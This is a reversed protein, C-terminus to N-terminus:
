SFLAFSNRRKQSPVIFSCGRILRRTTEVRQHIQVPICNQVLRPLITAAGCSKLEIDVRCRNNKTRPTTKITPSTNHEGNYRGITQDRARAYGLAESFFRARFNRKHLLSVLMKRRPPTYIDRFRLRFLACPVARSFLHSASSFLPGLVVVKTRYGYDQAGQKRGPMRAM